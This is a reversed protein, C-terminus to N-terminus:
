QKLGANRGNWAWAPPRLGYGALKAREPTSAILRAFQDAIPSADARRWLSYTTSLDFKKPFPGVLAAPNAQVIESLQTVGLDAQGDLVLHMTELGDAALVSKNLVQDRIGLADLVKLFHLGVTAGRAPDSFAVRPAALLAAKLKEPTSIDPKPQGPRAAFGGITDGIVETLGNRLKGNKEAASIRVQTTVLFAAHGDALFRQEAAGATDFVLNVKQGTSKEFDRAM